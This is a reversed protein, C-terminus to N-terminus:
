PRETIASTLLAALKDIQEYMPSYDLRRYIM